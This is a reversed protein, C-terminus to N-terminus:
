VTIEWVTGPKSRVDTLLEDVAKKVDPYNYDHGSLIGGKKVKPLWALIDAKVSDYDHAADIFVFALIGDPFGKVAQLSPYELTNIYNKLPRINRYYDDRIQDSTENVTSEGKFNDVGYLKVNLKHEKIHEALYLISKGKYTGVEVIMDGHKLNNAIEEYYKVFNFWGQAQEWYNSMLRM